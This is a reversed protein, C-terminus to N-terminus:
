LLWRRGGKRCGLGQGRGAGGSRRPLMVVAVGDDTASVQWENQKMAKPGGSSSHQKRWSLMAISRAGGQECPAGKIRPAKKEAPLEPLRFIHFVRRQMQSVVGQTALQLLSTELREGAFARRPRQVFSTM